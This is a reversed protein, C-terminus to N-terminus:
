KRVDREIERIVDINFGDQSLKAKGKNSTLYSGVRLAYNFARVSYAVKEEKDTGESDKLVKAYYDEDYAEITGNEYDIKFFRSIVPYKSLKEELEKKFKPEFKGKIMLDIVNGLFNTLIGIYSDIGMLTNKRVYNALNYSEDKIRHEKVLEQFRPYKEFFTMTDVYSTDVADMEFSIYNYNSRYYNKETDTLFDDLAMILLDYDFEDITTMEKDQNAHRTEHFITKVLSAFVKDINICFDIVGLNFYMIHAKSNYSGGRTASYDKATFDINFDLGYKRKQKVALAVSLPIAIKKKFEIDNSNIFIDLVKDFNDIFKDYSGLPRLAYEDLNSDEKLIRDLNSDLTANIADISFRSYFPKRSISWIYRRDNVIRRNVEYFFEMLGEDDKNTNYIQELAVIGYIYDDPKVNKYLGDLIISSVKRYLGKIKYLLSPKSSFIGMYDYNKLIPDKEMVENYLYSLKDDTLYQCLFLNNIFTTQRPGVSTGMMFPIGDFMHDVFENVDEELEKNISDMDKKNLYASLMNIISIIDDMSANKDYNIFQNSMSKAKVSNPSDRLEKPEIGELYKLLVAAKLFSEDGTELLLKNIISNGFTFLIGVKIAISEEKTLEVIKAVFQEIIQKKLRKVEEIPLKTDVNQLQTTFGIINIRNLVERAKEGREM